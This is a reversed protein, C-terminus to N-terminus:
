ARRGTYKYNTTDQGETKYTAGYSYYEYRSSKEGNANTIINSSGLHDSHYYYTNSSSDISCLKTSGFYIHKRSLDAERELEYLSGIYNTTAKDGSNSVVEKTIRGGDGDYTFNTTGSTNAQSYPLQRSTDKLAKLFYAEGPSIDIEDGLAIYKGSEPYYEYVLSYDTNKQLNNLAKNLPTNERSPCGILNYGKKLSLTIQESLRKVRFM